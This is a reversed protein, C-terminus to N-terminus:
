DRALAAGVAVLVMLAMVALGGMMVPLVLAPVAVRVSADAVGGSLWSTLAGIVIDGRMLLVMAVALVAVFPEAREVTDIPLMSQRRAERRADVKARWWLDSADPLPEAAEADALALLQVTVAEVQRCAACREVHAQLEDSWRTTEVATVVDPERGCLDGSM